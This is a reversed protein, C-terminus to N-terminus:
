PLISLLYWLNRTSASVHRPRVAVAAAGRYEVANQFLVALLSFFATLISRVRGSFGLLVSFEEASMYMYILHSAADYFAIGHLHMFLTCHTDVGLHRPLLLEQGPNHCAYVVTSPPLALFLSTKTPGLQM